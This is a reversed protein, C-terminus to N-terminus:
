GSASAGHPRELNSIERDLQFKPDTVIAELARVREELNGSSELGALRAELRLVDAKSTRSKSKAYVRYAELLCGFIVAVALFGWLGM